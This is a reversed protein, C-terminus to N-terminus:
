PFWDEPLIEIISRAYAAAVLSAYPQWRDNKYRDCYDCIGRVIMIDKGQMWAANQVGSGEMEIARVDWKDRLSDRIRPDKQLTDASAVAGRHVRPLRPSRDPDSPHLVIEEGVHLVDLKDDPRAASKYAEAGKDVWEEWPRKGLAAEADLQTAAQLIRASPKQPYSRHRAGEESAKINDYQVIGRYDVVVIDGLRVHEAPKEHNPCGGAIGVMLIHELGPFSILAQTTVSNASLNGMGSTVILVKRIHGDRKRRYIGERYINSDNSRGITEESYSDCTALVAAQECDKACVILVTPTGAGKFVFNCESATIGIEKKQPPHGPIKAVITVPVGPSFKIRVPTEMNKRVTQFVKGNVHVELEVGTVPRGLANSVQVSIVRLSRRSPSM